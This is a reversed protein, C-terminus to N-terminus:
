FPLSDVSIREEKAPVNMGGVELAAVREELKKVKEFLSTMPSVVRKDGPKRFNFQPFGNFVGNEELEVEIIDGVKWDRTWTTPADDFGSAYITKGNDEVQIKVLTFPNGKKSVMVEGNKKTTTATVNLLTYKPM